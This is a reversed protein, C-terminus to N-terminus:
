KSIVELIYEVRHKILHNDLVEKYGALAIDEALEPYMMVWKCKEELDDYTYSEYSIYHKGEVFIRDIGSAPDRDNILPVRHAMSEFVRQNLDHKQGHNFLNRCTAMAESCMPWKHRHPKSVQRIDYSWGNRICIEKLPDARDIGTSSGFFGFDYLQPVSTERPHFFREDTANPLWHASKLGSFLERRSWVAFFVDDYTKATRRHLTPKGHSDIYWVGRKIPHTSRHVNAGQFVLDGSTNRGNEIELFYDFAKPNCNKLDTFEHGEGVPTVEHGFVELWHHVCRAYCEVPKDKRIDQRYGLLIRM